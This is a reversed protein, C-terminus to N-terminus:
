KKKALKQLKMERLAMFLPFTFAMATIGSVIFYIYVYKMGLKKAETIMFAVVVFAVILLDLSLVWDFYNGFWSSLYSEGAVVGLSNFVWATILGIGSLIFYFLALGNLNKTM